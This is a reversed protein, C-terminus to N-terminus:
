ARQYWVLLRGSKSVTEQRVIRSRRELARLFNEQTYDPFIDERLLLLQQVMADNKPVFEIVGAPALALLWDFIWNLVTEM